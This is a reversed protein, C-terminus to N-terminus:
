GHKYLALCELWSLQLHGLPIRCRRLMQSLRVQDGLHVILANTCIGGDM